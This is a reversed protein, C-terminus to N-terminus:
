ANPAAYGKAHDEPLFPRRTSHSAAFSASKSSVAARLRATIERGPRAVLITAPPRGVPARDRSVSAAIEAADRSGNGRLQDAIWRAVLFGARRDPDPTTEFDILSGARGEPSASPGGSIM